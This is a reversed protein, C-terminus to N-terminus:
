TTVGAPSRVGNGPCSSGSPGSSEALMVTERRVLLSWKSIRFSFMAGSKQGIYFM